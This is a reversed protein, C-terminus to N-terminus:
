DDDNFVIKRNAASGTLANQIALKETEKRSKAAQWSAHLHESDVDTSKSSQERSVPPRSVDSTRSPPKSFRSDRLPQNHATARQDFRRRDDPFRSNPRGFGRENASTRADWKRDFSAPQKANRWSTNGERNDFRGRSTWGNGGYNGVSQQKGGFPRTDSTNDALRSVFCSKLKRKSSIADDTEDEDKDDDRRRPWRKAVPEESGPKVFFDDEEEQEDDGTASSKKASRVTFLVLMLELETM